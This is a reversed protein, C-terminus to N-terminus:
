AAGGMSCRRCGWGRDPASVAPKFVGFWCQHQFKVLEISRESRSLGSPGMARPNYGQFRASEERMRGKPGGEGLPLLPDQLTTELLRRGLGKGRHEPVVALGM